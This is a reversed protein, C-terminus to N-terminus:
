GAKYGLRGVEGPWANEFAAELEPTFVERWGGPSGRRLHNTNDEDGPKRGSRSEFSHRDVISGIEGEPLDLGLFAFLEAFSGAGGEWLEEYRVVRVLPNPGIPKGALQSLMRHHPLLAALGDAISLDQLRARLSEIQPTNNEHSNKWSWYQSVLVDRPDRILHFGRGPEAISEPTCEALPNVYLRVTGAGPEGTFDDARGGRVEYGLGLARATDKLISRMWNTGCKHHGFYFTDHTPAPM